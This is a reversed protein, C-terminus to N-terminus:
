CSVVELMKDFDKAADIADIKGEILMLVTKNCPFKENKILNHKAEYDISVDSSLSDFLRKSVDGLILYCCLGLSYLDHVASVKITAGNDLAKRMDPSIFDVNGSASMTEDEHRSLDFDILKVEFNRPNILINESAVDGHVIHMAHLEALARAINRAM